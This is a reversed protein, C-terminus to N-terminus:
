GYRASAVRLLGDFPLQVGNVNAAAAAYVIPHYLYIAPRDALIIQQAARYLSALSKPDTAKRANALTLDLRPNSYGSMNLSGQTALFQFFQRDTDPSGSWSGLYAEFMGATTRANATAADTADIVVNIGVAAEEIQIFNALRVMDSQNSTLLHVTPNAIGSAAVLRRAGATDFTTCHINAEYAAFVPSVPSLPTCGPVVRGGFVVRALTARDIAEEFAQRLKPSSSLVNDATGYPLQGIGHTNGMNVYVAEYGLSRAETVHLSRSRTLSPVDPSPVSDLAQLDGAQLAAVAAQADPESEFVIRDLHVDKRDFYYPSKVVTVSYGAIRNAFMFPGVCVPDTGFNTGLRALQTPSVIVGDASALVKTMPTYPTKLRIVVTYRGPATVAAVPSYDGARSSGPITLDREITTVVAHADFPTGDNFRIGHRLPITYTLRDKSITPLAAALEPVVRVELDYDYLRECMAKFVEVSDFTRSLSPDLTDPDGRSMGVVLTGGKTPRDPHAVVADPGVVLSLVLGTLVGATVRLAHL